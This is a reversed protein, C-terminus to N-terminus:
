GDKEPRGHVLPIVSIDYVRMPVAIPNDICGIYMWKDVEMQVILDYRFV